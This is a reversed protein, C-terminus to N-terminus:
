IFISYTKILMMFVCFIFQFVRDPCMETRTRKTERTNWQILIVLGGNILVYITAARAKVILKTIVDKRLSTLLCSPIKLIHGQFVHSHQFM